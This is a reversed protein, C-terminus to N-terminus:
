GPTATVAFVTGGRGRGRGIKGVELLSAHVSWYREDNWELVSRRFYLNGVPGTEKRLARLFATRDAAFEGKAVAKRTM